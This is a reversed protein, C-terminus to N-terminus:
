LINTNLLKKWLYWSWIRSLAMLIEPKRGITNHLFCFQWYGPSTRSLVTRATNSKPGKWQKSMPDCLAYTMCVRAMNTTGTNGTLNNNETQTQNNITPMNSQLGIWNWDITICVSGKKQNFAMKTANLKNENSSSVMLVTVCSGVQQRPHCFYCIELSAVHPTCTLSFLKLLVVFCTNPQLIPWFSNM